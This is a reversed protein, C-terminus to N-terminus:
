FNWLHVLIDNSESEKKSHSLPSNVFDVLSFQIVLFDMNCSFMNVLYYFSHYCQHGFESMERETGITFLIFPNLYLPLLKDGIESLYSFKHGNLFM